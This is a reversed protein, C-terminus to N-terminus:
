NLKEYVIFSSEGVLEVVKEVGGSNVMELTSDDLIYKVPQDTTTYDFEAVGDTFTIKLNKYKEPNYEEMIKTTFDRNIDTAIASDLEETERFVAKVPMKDVGNNQVQAENGYTLHLYIYNIPADQGQESLQEEILRNTESFMENFWNAVEEQSNWPQGTTPNLDWIFSSGNIVTLEKKDEDYTYTIKEMSKM